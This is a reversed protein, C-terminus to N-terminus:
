DESINCSSRCPYLFRLMINMVYLTLAPRNQIFSYLKNNFLEKTMKKKLHYRCVFFLLEPSGPNVAFFSLPLTTPRLKGPPKRPSLNQPDQKLTYSILKLGRVDLHVNKKYPDCNYVYTSFQHLPAYGM